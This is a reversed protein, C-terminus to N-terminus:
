LGCSMGPCCMSRFNPAEHELRETKRWTDSQEESTVGSVRKSVQIGRMRKEKHWIRGACERCREEISSKEERPSAREAIRDKNTDM